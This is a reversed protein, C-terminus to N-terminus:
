LVPCERYVGYAPNRKPGTNETEASVPFACLSAALLLAASLILAITKKM